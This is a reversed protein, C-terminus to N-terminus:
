AGINNKICEVIIKKIERGLGSKYYKEYYILKFPGNNKSWNNSGHNHEYVRAKPKKSTKSVYIKKNRESEM